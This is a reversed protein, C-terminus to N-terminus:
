LRPSQARIISTAKQLEAGLLVLIDDLTVIGELAGEDDVIPLRRVAAEELRRLAEFVSMESTGTVLDDSVLFEITRDTLDPTEELLLAIQRDTVVGVPVDAEVVVVSGVDNQAMHGVVRSIPTDPEVTVVDTQVIEEITVSRLRPRDAPSVRHQQRQQPQASGPAAQRPSQQARPPVQQTAGPGQQQAGTQPPIPQNPAGRPQGTETQPPAGQSPAAQPQASGSRPSYYGQQAAPAQRQPYSPQNPPSQNEPGPPQQRPPPQTGEPPAQHTRERHQDPAEGQHHTM